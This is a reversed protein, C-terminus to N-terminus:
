FLLNITSALILDKPAFADTLAYVLKKRIVKFAPLQSIIHRHRPEKFHVPIMDGSPESAQHTFILIRDSIYIAEEPNQTYFFVTKPKKFLLRMNQLSKQLQIKDYEDALTFLDPLLVFHKASLYLYVLLVRQRVPQTLQRYHLTEYPQLYAAWFVQRILYEKDISRLLSEEENIFESLLNFLSLDSSLLKHEFSLDFTEKVIEQAVGLSASINEKLLVQSLFAMCNKRSGMVTIVDQQGVILDSALANPTKQIRASFVPKMQTLERYSLIKM